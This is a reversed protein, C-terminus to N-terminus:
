IRVFTRIKRGYYKLAVSQELFMQIGSEADTVDFVDILKWFGAVDYVVDDMCWARSHRDVETTPATYKLTVVVVKEETPVQVFLVNIWDHAEALFGGEKKKRASGMEVLSKLDHLTLIASESQLLEVLFTRFQSEDGAKGFDSSMLKHAEQPMETRGEFVQKFRSMHNGDGTEFPMGIQFKSYFDSEDLKPVMLPEFSQSIEVIRNMIYQHSKVIAM